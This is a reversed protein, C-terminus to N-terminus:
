SHKRRYVVTVIGTILVALPLLIVLLLGITNMQADTLMLYEDEVLSITSVATTTTEVDALENVTNVLLSINGFASNQAYEDYFLYLASYVAAGASTESDKAYVGLYFTGSIDGEEKYYSSASAAKNYATSSTTLIPTFSLTDRLETNTTLGSAIQAIVYKNLINSTFANSSISPVLYNPSQMYYRSNEELLIGDTLEIGYSNVLGMLNTHEADMYSLAFIVQGGRQMYDSLLAIEEKTYDNQPTHILIVDCDEPIETATLLTISNVVINAKDMMALTNIGMTQEGHGTVEYVTPLHEMTVYGIASNIQGEIDLAVVNSVYQYTTYDISSETILMDSYPIYRSRGNTENVVIISYEEVAEDTYQSAFKPNMTPDKTVLKMNDCHKMYQAIIKDFWDIKENSPALYYLTIKDEMSNLMSVTSESLTYKNDSTLDFTINLRTVVLNVLIVIAIVVASLAMAYAGGKFKRTNFNTKM